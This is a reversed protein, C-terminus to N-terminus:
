DGEAPLGATSRALSLELAFRDRDDPPIQLVILRRALEAATARPPDPVFPTIRAVPAGNKVLVASEGRYRIRNILDSFGRAAATVSIHRDPMSIM